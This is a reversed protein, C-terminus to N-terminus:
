ERVFRVWTSQVCVRPSRSTREAVAVEADRFAFVVVDDERVLPRRGELNTVFEPGRGTVLALEMSAAEGTPEAEPHYFDAHGALFLLGYRGRRRLALAAGLLISCDGGLVIPFRGRDLIAAVSDALRYSFDRLGSPNLMRTAPDIQPDYEPATLRDAQRADL